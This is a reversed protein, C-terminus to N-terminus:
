SDGEGSVGPNLPPHRELANRFAELPTHTGFAELLNLGRILLGRHRVLIHKRMLASGRAGRETVVCWPCHYIVSM